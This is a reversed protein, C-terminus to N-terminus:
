TLRLRCIFGVVLFLNHCKLGGFIGVEILQSKIPLHPMLNIIDFQLIRYRFGDIHM